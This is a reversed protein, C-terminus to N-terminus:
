VVSYWSDDMFLHFTVDVTKEWLRKHRMVDGTVRTGTRRFGKCSQSQEVDQDSRKEQKGGDDSEGNFSNDPSHTNEKFTVTLLFHIATVGETM